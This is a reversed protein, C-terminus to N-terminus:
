VGNSHYIGLGILTIPLVQKSCYVDLWKLTICVLDKLTICVLGNLTICVLRKLTISM